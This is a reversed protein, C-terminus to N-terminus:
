MWYDRNFIWCKWTFLWCYESVLLRGTEPDAGRPIKFLELGADNRQIHAPLVKGDKDIWVQVYFPEVYWDYDKAVKSWFDRAEEVKSKISM